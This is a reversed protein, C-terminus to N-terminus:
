NRLTDVDDVEFVADDPDHDETWTGLWTNWGLCSPQLTNGLQLAPVEHRRLVLQLDFEFQPGVYTRAVAVAAPLLKGTPLFQLFQEWGMPGLRLRFRNEVHWVREGAVADLGLRNNSSEGLRVPELRTQDATSIRIWEGWFQRIAVSVKFWDSLLSVLATPRVHGDSLLGTYHLLSQDELRLRGRQGSTGLGILAWLITTVTDETGCSQATQYASPYNHKEWARYFHSLWRHNFLDLFRNLGYDKHRIRDIITQTYHQPLAGSPGFLGLCSVELVVRGRSDLSAQALETAPYAIAAEARLSIPEDSPRLDRGILAGRESQIKRLAAFFSVCRVALPQTPISSASPTPRPAQANM